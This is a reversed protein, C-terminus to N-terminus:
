HRMFCCHKNREQQYCYLNIIKLCESLSPFKILTILCHINKKWVHWRSGMNSSEIENAWRRRWSSRVTKQSTISPKGWPNRLKTRMDGSAFAPESRHMRRRRSIRNTIGACCMLQQDIGAVSSVTTICTINHTMINHRIQGFRIPLKKIVTWISATIFKTSQIVM